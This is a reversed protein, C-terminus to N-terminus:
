DGRAKKLMETVQEPELDGLTAQVYTDPNWLDDLDLIGNIKQMANDLISYYASLLKKLEILDEKYTQIGKSEVHAREFLELMVNPFVSWQKVLEPIWPGQGMVLIVQQLENPTIDYNLPTPAVTKIAKAAGTAYFRRQTTEKDIRSKLLKMKELRVLAKYASNVPYRRGKRKSSRYDALDNATVGGNGKSMVFTITEDSAFAERSTRPRAM